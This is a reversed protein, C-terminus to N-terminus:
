TQLNVERLDAEHLAAAALDAKWFIGNTIIANQFKVARLHARAFNIRGLNLLQLDAWSLDPVIDPHEKRWANWAQPGQQLVALHGANAM